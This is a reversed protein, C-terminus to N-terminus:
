LRLHLHAFISYWLIALTKHKSLVSHIRKYVLIISKDKQPNKEQEKKEEFCHPQPYDPLAAAKLLYDM